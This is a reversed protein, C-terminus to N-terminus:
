KEQGGNQDSDNDDMGTGGADERKKRRGKYVYLVAACLALTGFIIDERAHANRLGASILGAGTVGLCVALFYWWLHEDKMM